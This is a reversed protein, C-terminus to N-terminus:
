LSAAAKETTFEGGAASNIIPSGLLLPRHGITCIAGALRRHM